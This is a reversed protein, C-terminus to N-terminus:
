RNPATRWDRSTRPDNSTGSGDRGSPYTVSPRPSDATRSPTTTTPAGPRRSATHDGSFSSEGTTPQLQGDVLDVRIWSSGTSSRFTVQVQQASTWPGGATYGPNATASVLTLVGNGTSVTIEGGASAFTQQRPAPSSHGGAQGASSAPALPAGNTTPMPADTPTTTGAGEPPLDPAPADPAVTPADVAAVPPPGNTEPATTSATTTSPLLTPVVAATSTPPDTATRRTSRAAVGLTVLMAVVLLACVVVMRRRRARRLRTRVQVLADATDCEDGSARWLAGRLEDDHFDSM